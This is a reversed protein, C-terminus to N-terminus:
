SGPNQSPEYEGDRMSTVSQKRVAGRSVVVRWHQGVRSGSCVIVSCPCKRQELKMKWSSTVLRWPERVMDWWDGSPQPCMFSM